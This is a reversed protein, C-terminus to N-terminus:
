SVLISSKIEFRSTVTFLNIAHSTPKRLRVRLDDHDHNSEGKVVWPDPQSAEQLQNGVTIQLFPGGTSWVWSVPELASSPLTHMPQQSHHSLQFSIARWSRIQNGNNSHSFLCPPPRPRGQPQTIEHTEGTNQEGELAGQFLQSFCM